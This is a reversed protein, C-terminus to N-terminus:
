QAYTCVTKTGRTLHGTTLDVSAPLGIEGSGGQKKFEAFQRCTKPTGTGVRITFGVRNGTSATENAETLPESVVAKGQALDYVHLKGSMGALETLALFRGNMGEVVFPKGPEGLRLIDGERPAFVCLGAEAPSALRRAYLEVGIEDPLNRAVVLYGPTTRCILDPTGSTAAPQAQAAGAAALGLLCTSGVLCAVLRKM